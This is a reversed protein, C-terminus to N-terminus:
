YNNKILKNIQGIAHEYNYKKKKALKKGKELLSTFTVSLSPFVASWKAAIELLVSHIRTRNLAPAVSLRLKPIYGSPIMQVSVKPRYFLYVTANRCEFSDATKMLSWRPRTVNVDAHHRRTSTVTKAWSTINLNSSLLWCIKTNEDFIKRLKPKVGLSKAHGTARM